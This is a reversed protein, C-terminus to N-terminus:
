HSELIESNIMWPYGFEKASEPIQTTIGLLVLSSPEPVSSIEFQWNDFGVTNSLTSDSGATCVHHLVGVFLEYHLGSNSRSSALSFAQFFLLQAGRVRRFKPLFFQLSLGIMGGFANSETYM